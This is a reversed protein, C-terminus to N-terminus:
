RSSLARLVARPETEIVRLLLRASRDPHRRGQEWDRLTAVAFGFRSAFDAQSLGTTVRIKQVNIRAPVRGSANRSQQSRAAAGSTKAKGATKKKRAM